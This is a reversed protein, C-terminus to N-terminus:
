SMQAKIAQYWVGYGANRMVETGFLHERYKFAHDSGEGLITVKPAFEQQLIFPKVRGDTRFLYVLDTASTLGPNLEVRFKHGQSLLGRVPNTVDVSTNEGSVATTFAAYQSATAVQILWNKAGRNVYFGRDNQYTFMHGVLATVILAAEAATPATATGINLAPIESSTLSNKATTSGTTSEAVPHDTDFFNQADFTQAGNTNILATTLDEWHYAGAQGLEGLRAMIQGTKDRRLDDVPIGVTQEFLKNTITFSDVKPKVINRGGLWESFKPVSGLMKYTESPQSSNFFQFGVDAAWSADFQVDLMDYFNGVIAPSSLDVLTGM